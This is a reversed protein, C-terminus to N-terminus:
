LFPPTRTFAVSGVNLPLAHREVPPDLPDIRPPPDCDILRAYIDGHAARV